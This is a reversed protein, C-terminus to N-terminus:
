QKREFDRLMQLNKQSFHIKQEPCKKLFEDISSLCRNKRKPAEIFVSALSFENYVTSYVASVAGVSLHSIDNLVQLGCNNRLSDKMKEFRGNDNGKLQSCDNISTQAGLEFATTYIDTSGNVDYGSLKYFATVVTFVISVVLVVFNMVGYNNNCAMKILFFSVVMTFVAM